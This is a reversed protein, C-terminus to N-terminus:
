QQFHEIGLLVGIAVNIGVRLLTDGSPSLHLTRPGGKVGRAAPSCALKQSRPLIAERSSNNFM